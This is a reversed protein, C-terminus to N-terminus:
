ARGSKADTFEQYKLPFFSYPLLLDLICFRAHRAHESDDKKGRTLNDGTKEVVHELPMGWARPQRSVRYM